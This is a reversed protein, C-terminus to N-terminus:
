PLEKYTATYKELVSLHIMVSRPITTLGSRWSHVSQRSVGLWSAFDIDRVPRNLSRAIHETLEVFREKSLKYVTLADALEAKKIIKM